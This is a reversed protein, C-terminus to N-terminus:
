VGAPVSVDRANARGGIRWSRQAVIHGADPAKVMHHLTVGTEEECEVLAWNLAARGRLLPLKCGHLNLAGKPALALVKTPIMDRYYFSLILDPRLDAVAKP